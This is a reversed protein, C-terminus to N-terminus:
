PPGKPQETATCLEPSELPGLLEELWARLISVGGPFVGPLYYGTNRKQRPGVKRYSFTRIPSTTGSNEIPKKNSFYLCGGIKEADHKTFGFASMADRSNTLVVGEVAMDAEAGPAVDGWRVVEHVPLPFPM